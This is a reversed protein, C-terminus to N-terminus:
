PYRGAQFGRVNLVDEIVKAYRAPMLSDEIKPPGIKSVRVVVMHKLQGNGSSAVPDHREVDAVEGPGLPESQPDQCWSIEQPADSGHRSCELNAVARTM